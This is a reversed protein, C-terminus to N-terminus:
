HCYGKINEGDRNNDCFREGINKCASEDFVRLVRDKKDAIGVRFRRGTKETVCARAALDSKVRVFRGLADAAVNFLELKARMGRALRQDLVSFFTRGAFKTVHM